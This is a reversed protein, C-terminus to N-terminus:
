LSTLFKESDPSSNRYITLNVYCTEYSLDGKLEQLTNNLQQIEFSSPSVRNISFCVEQLDDDTTAKFMASTLCLLTTVFITLLNHLNNVQFLMAKFVFPQKQLDFYGSFFFSKNFM